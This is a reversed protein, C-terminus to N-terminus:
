LGSEILQRPGVVVQLVQPVARADGSDEEVGLQANPTERGGGRLDNGKLGRICTTGDLVEGRVQNVRVQLLVGLSNKSVTLSCLIM